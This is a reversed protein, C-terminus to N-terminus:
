TKELMSQLEKERMSELKKGIKKLRILDEDNQFAREVSETHEAITVMIKPLLNLNPCSSHGIKTLEAMCKRDNNTHFLHLNEEISIIQKLLQEIKILKKTKKPKISHRDQNKPVYKSSNQDSAIIDTRKKSILADRDKATCVKTARVLSCTVCVILASLKYAHNM